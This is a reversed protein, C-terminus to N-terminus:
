FPLSPVQVPGYTLLTAGRAHRRALLSDGEELEFYEDSSDFALTAPGRTIVVRVVTTEPVVLHTTYQNAANWALGIGEWFICRTIKNFYATSGFPTCMLFGDGLIEVGGDLPAENIWVKFRVASNIRGMHVNIENLATVHCSPEAQDARQIACELKTYHQEVLQGAALHAIVDGSPHPICRHGRNSNLIPVKPVGPWNLEAALLTGDGGYSIIVDAHDEVIELNGHSAVEQELDRAHAGFLIVRQTKQKTQDM